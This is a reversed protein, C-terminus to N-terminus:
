TDVAGFQHPPPPPAIRIRADVVVAGAHGAILPNCDLEAIEPHAAALAAVRLLADEVAAVDTRARGRYGDLLPFIRLSRLMEGAERRGIPALRVQVDRILEATTGGAGIAVLPGFAPDGVVGLLMGRGRAGHDARPLGRPSTRRRTGRRRDRECRARGGRCRRGGAPGRWYRIQACTPAIAKIALPGDLRLAARAVARPSTAVLSSALPLGFSGLLEDVQAPALWGGGRGLSEAVIAAARDRDFGELEPPPDPAAARQRAHRVVHALARVADEPSGFAPVGRGVPAAPPRDAGMFVALLPKGGGATAGGVSQVARAVDAARAALPRVFISIVADVGPDALVPALTREYDAATATAIMDVPNGVSAEPPLGGAITAQTEGSLSAVRLGNAECADACLIGPGGGNTVIAIRDGGPLPQRSLLAAVDLMEDITETRIVGAHGFLADVSADSAAVIAGTHSSAARQGARTRGSKVAIVPKASAVRRAVAGFNRPNGFSELYLLVADTGSDAGWFHLFDNSSLDARDGLSM